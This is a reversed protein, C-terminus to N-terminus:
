RELRSADLRLLVFLMITFSWLSSGGYSFFPLPIGIIPALGIVMGINIAFHFFLITAVCYGYIQNFEENQREAIQVIRIMLLLYLVLVLFSGVFGFEEGITCFIFDTEQEPVYNLKTQTGNLFGKGIFQGSGIAIKSQNVNYGAGKPDDEMGLVVRIRSQQHPQLVNFAMSASQSYLTASLTFVALLSFFKRSPTRISSSIPARWARVVSWAFVFLLFAIAFLCYSLSFFYNIALAVVITSILIKILFWVSETDRHFVLLFGVVTLFILICAVLLGISGFSSWFTNQSLSEALPDGFKIVIIFLVIALFSLFLLVGPMGKRYLVLFFSSFVLASGTENQAIIIVMPLLFLACVIAYNRFGKLHFDYRSIVHSLALATAFKAFEAPQLAFPGIDIWSHSGKHGSSIFITLILLLILATYIIMSFTEWIRSNILLISTAIVGSCLIWIVQKGAKQGFEFIALPHEPNYTACFVSMGGMAILLIYIFIAPWDVTNSISQRRIM